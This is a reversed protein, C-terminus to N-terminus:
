DRAPTNTPRCEKTKPDVIWPPPMKYDAHPPMPRPIKWSKGYSKELVKDAKNPCQLQIDNFMYMKVPYLDDYTYKIKRVIDNEDCGLIKDKPSRWRGRQDTPQAAPM